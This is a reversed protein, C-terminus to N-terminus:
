ENRETIERCYDLTGPNENLYDWAWSQINVDFFTQSWPTSTGIQSSVYLINKSILGNVVGSEINLSQTKTKNDIYGLVIECEERTLDHLLQKRRSKERWKKYKKRLYIITSAAGYSVYVVSAILFVAGVWGRHESRFEALGLHTLYDSSLFLLLGTGCALAFLYRPKLKIWGLLKSLDM